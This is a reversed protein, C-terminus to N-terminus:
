DIETLIRKLQEIAEPGLQLKQNATGPKERDLSGRTRINLFTDGESNRVVSLEAHIQTPDLKFDEGGKRLIQKIFAM